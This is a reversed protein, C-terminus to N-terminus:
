RRKKAFYLTLVGDKLSREGVELAHMPLGIHREFRGHSRRPERLPIQRRGTAISMRMSGFLM